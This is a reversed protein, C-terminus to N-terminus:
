YCCFSNGGRDLLSLPLSHDGSCCSSYTYSFAAQYSGDTSFSWYPISGYSVQDAIAGHGLPGSCTARSSLYFIDLMAFINKYVRGYLWCYFCIFLVLYVFLYLFLCAFWSVSTGTLSSIFFLFFCNKLQLFNYFSLQTCKLSM